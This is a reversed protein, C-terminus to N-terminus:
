LLQKTMVIADTRGGDAARYYGPRRGVEAFGHRRYLALAAENDQAVELFLASVRLLGLTEAHKLLLDRAVGRRRYSTAVAITLIEAENAAKRSLVFGLLADSSSDFIGDSVVNESLILREIEVADWPYAFGDKHLRACAVADAAELSRSQIQLARRLFGMM